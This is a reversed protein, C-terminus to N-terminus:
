VKQLLLIKVIYQGNWKIGPLFKSYIIKILIYTPVYTPKFM